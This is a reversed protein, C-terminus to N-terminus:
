DVQHARLRLPALDNGQSATRTTRIRGRQRQIETVDEEVIHGVRKQGVFLWTSFGIAKGSKSLYVTLRDLKPPVEEGAVRQSITELDLDVSDQLIPERGYGTIRLRSRFRTLEGVDRSLGGNLLGSFVGRAFRVLFSM